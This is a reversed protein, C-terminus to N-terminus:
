ISEYEEVNRENEVLGGEEFHAFTLIDGTKEHSSTAYPIYLVAPIMTLAESHPRPTYALASYNKEFVIDRSSFFNRTSPVYVLYGKQYQPIGVFIGSFGKQSQHCM